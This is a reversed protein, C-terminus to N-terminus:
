RRGATRYSSYCRKRTCSELRLVSEIAMRRYMGRLNCWSPQVSNPGRRSEYCGFEEGHGGLVDGRRRRRFVRIGVEKKVFPYYQRASSFKWMARDHRWRCRRELQVTHVSSRRIQDPWSRICGQQEDSERISLFKSGCIRFISSALRKEMFGLNSAM